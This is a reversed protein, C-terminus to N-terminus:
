PAVRFWVDVFPLAQGDQFVSARQRIENGFRDRESVNAYALPLAEIQRDELTRLEDPTSKGDRNLDTWLLLSRYAGDDSTIQGDGNGDLEALAVFGNAALGDAVRTSDGFLESGDNIEGDGNRDFALFAATPAQPWSVRDLKGDADVDFLTGHSPRSLDLGKGSFDIMLPSKREDCGSGGQAKLGKVPKMYLGEVQGQLSAKGASLRVGSTLGLVGDQYNRVNSELRGMSGRSQLAALCEAHRSSDCLALWYTGDDVEDARPVRITGLDGIDDKNALALKPGAFSKVPSGDGDVLALSVGSSTAITSGSKQAGVDSCVREVSITADGEGLEEDDDSDKGDKGSGDETEGDDGESGGMGSEEGESGGNGSGKGADKGEVGDAADEEGKALAHGGAPAAPGAGFDSTGCAPSLSALFALALFIRLQSM